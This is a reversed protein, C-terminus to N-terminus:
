GCQAGALVHLAHYLRALCTGLADQPAEQHAPDFDQLLNMLQVLMEQRLPLLKANSCNIGIRM